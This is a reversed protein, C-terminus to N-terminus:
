IFAVSNDSLLMRPVASQIAYFNDDAADVLSYKSISATTYIASDVKQYGGGEFAVIDGSNFPSM